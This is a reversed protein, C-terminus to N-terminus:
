YDIEDYHKYTNGQGGTADLEPPPGRGYNMFTMRESHGVTDILKQVAMEMSRLSATNGSVIITLTDVDESLRVNSESHKLIAASNKEIVEHSLHQLDHCSEIRHAAVTDARLNEQEINALTRQDKVDMHYLFGGVVIVMLIFDPRDKLIKLLVGIISDERISM